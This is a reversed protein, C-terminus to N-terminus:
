RGRGRERAHVAEACRSGGGREVGEEGGVVERLAEVLYGLEGVIVFGVLDGIPNEDFGEAFQIAGFKCNRNNGM